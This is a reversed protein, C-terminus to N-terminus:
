DGPQREPEAGALRRLTGALAAKADMVLSFLSPVVLLTFITSVVLGGVVVAGLGRYLESGPGPFLVLPSMGFVSTGVSMFIPRVRTSTAERIAARTPMKEERVLNLSQHVILIANNVVTGVLIVFGLMTLIDLPQYALFANVAALGLFGGAAALPVSFMIVFPYLFSEFLAAMLLYTIALALIFNWKFSNFTQTLKDATGSLHTRYLGGLQGAQRMPELIDNEIIEMARELPMQEAPTVQITIARERERHNITVPGTTEGVDAISGLTILQGDPTAIPMQDLLHTRHAFGEEAKVKPDKGRGEDKNDNGQAGFVRARGALGLDRNSIGLDAARRRDVVVQVEPNGLDLSPIPRAQSGPLKQMVQGFIQGGLSILREIEPGTIDIDINRGEGLGRQFISAQDVFGIAGPINFNVKQFEPILERAREPDRSRIGMFCNEHLAIFFFGSIGGGPLRDAEPGSTTWLHSLQDTYRHRLASVEEINQGPSPLLIGFLFNVNGRPLYEIKPMLWVSLIVAAATLGAVVLGRRLFGGCVWYVFGTLRDTASQAVATLGFLNHFGYKRYVKATHLIQASMSPIVTISVVLSLGVAVSLAIAIDRFLQGAEEAVFVVPVFVAVTTLTSALVAGWVESAGDQAAQSLSKGMQRHRYINELVVISNDVVMGVAFAMGALSIVNVTRGFWLLALFTGIMSVPIAVAIILTSTVSRLFLLLVLVSLAGGVYLSQKVLDISSEIYETEDYAQILQLGRPALLEKNLREVTAKLQTMVDLVNEGPEKVGNIAIMPQGFFFPQAIPKRFGMEVRAVDRVYIPVGNRTTIVVNEIDRPSQYEGVTRVIYRRKGESFDGGSYNRNERDLAAGLQNLTVQRAALKAPDVVVHMERERGGFINAQALGPVREFEPKIFDDVFDYLTSVDGAFPIGGGPQLIFWAIASAEAAVTFIVPKDADDPYRPVQELANSVRLLAADQDTGLQFTLTISGFSDSSSSEMRVLGELAKLQEEQEDVIEREVEQPSAGPWFTRVTVEPEEVTPTLQVPIRRLALSGFLVLLIVGVTTTVPFKIADHILKM